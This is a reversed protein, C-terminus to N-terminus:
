DVEIAVCGRTHDDVINLTRFAHGDALTDLTFGISGDNARERLTRCGDASSRGIHGVFSEWSYDM